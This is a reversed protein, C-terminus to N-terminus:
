RPLPGGADAHIDDHHGRPHPIEETLGAGPLWLLATVGASGWHGTGAGQIGALERNSM